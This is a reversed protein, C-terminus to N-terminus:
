EGNLLKNEQMSSMETGCFKSALMSIECDMPIWSM